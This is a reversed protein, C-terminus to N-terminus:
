KIVIIYKELKYCKKMKYQETQKTGGCWAPAHLHLYPSAKELLLHSRGGHPFPKKREKM